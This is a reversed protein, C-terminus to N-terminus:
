PNSDLWELALDIDTFFKVVVNGQMVDVSKKASLQSFASASFVWAFYKLGACELMPLWENGAWDSAESWTGMVHRNDNLLKSCKNKELLELTMLGGKKVSGFDQFGTWNVDLRGKPENYQITINGDRYFVDTKIVAPDQTGDPLPLRFFFTSGKGQESEIWFSGQHRKLIESSIFLGLGLGEFRMATNDVRYYRDFLKDLSEEAIGIGFDQISVIINGAEVKSKVIVKNAEPSYKVANTLFNNMVQELRFNDGTYTIDDVSELVIQHTVTTHQVSEISQELMQRFSFPQMNYNLKGANIKTVDLLDAILKELRLIHDASKSVFGQLTNLDKSRAILQNYAKISTLPTKLEHSAISLFEDKKQAASKQVEINTNTGLWLKIEGNEVLPLARGLHWVFSGDSFLLRFEVLYEKGSKLATQWKQLIEPKEDPHIFEQWGLGIIEEADRGFDKCVVQNVYDVTGDPTSTWVQQPIANLMFRFRTASAEVLQRAQVQETVDTAVVMISITAGSEHKLPHYVFNFYVERLNGNYNLQAKVENGYCPVGSSYVENLMEIFPQDEIEPLASALPKGIIADTKGWVELIKKNASEIIFDTGSLLGIAVPADAVMYRIRSESDALKRVTEQLSQETIILEENTSILEENSASLEENIATVEENLEQQKKFSQELSMRAEVQSTIDEATVIIGCVENGSDFMPDYYFRIYKRVEGDPTNYTLLEEEQGYGKGTTYVQNLLMPFPQDSIEPLIELLPRGIVDALTKSWLEVLPQNAIEVIWARGRLLMLPYHVTMVLNRLTTESEVLAKVRDKIKAELNENLHQLKDQTERLEEITHTLEENSASLEENTAALEENLNQVLNEGVELARDLEINATLNHTTLLLHTVEGDEGEVPMIELKWWNCELRKQDASPIDYRFPPTYITTSSNLSQLLAENVVRKGNGNALAPDFVEWLKKGLIERSETNTVAQYSNNFAAITFDPADANLILRPISTNFFAKFLRDASIPMLSLFKSSTKVFHLALFYSCLAV